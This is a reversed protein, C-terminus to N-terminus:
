GSRKGIHMSIQGKSEGSTTSRDDDFRKEGGGPLLHKWFLVVLVLCALQFLAETGFLVLLNNGLGPIGYYLFVAAFPGLTRAASGGAVMWGLYKGQYQSPVLKSYLAFTVPRGTMFGANITMYGAVFRNVYPPLYIWEPFWVLKGWDIMLMLGIFCVVLAYFILYRDQVWKSAVVFAVYALLSILGGFTFLLNCEQVHWNFEDSALPSTITELVSWACMVTFQVFILLSAVVASPPPEDLGADTSEEDTSKGGSVNLSGYGNPKSSDDKGNLLGSAESADDRSSANGSDKFLTQVMIIDVLFMIVLLWGPGTYKNVTVGFVTFDLTALVTTLAPGVPVIQPSIFM